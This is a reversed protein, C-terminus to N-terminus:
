KKFIIALALIVVGGIIMLEQKSKSEEKVEVKTEKNKDSGLFNTFIEKEKKEFDNKWKDKIDDVHKQFLPLDPHISSLFKLGNERDRGIASALQKALHKRDPKMGYHSVVQSAGSPNNTAVYQYVNM